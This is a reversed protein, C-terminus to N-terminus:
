QRQRQMFQFIRREGGFHFSQTRRKDRTQMRGCPAQDCDFMQKLLRKAHSVEKQILLDHSIPEPRRDEKKEGAERVFETCNRKGLMGVRSKKERLFGRSHVENASDVSDNMVCVISTDDCDEDARANAFDKIARSPWEVRPGTRLGFAACQGPDDRSTEGRLGKLLCPRGFHGGTDVSGLKALQSNWPALAQARDQEDLPEDLFLDELCPCLELNSIEPSKPFFTKAPFDQALTQTDSPPCESLFRNRQVPQNM